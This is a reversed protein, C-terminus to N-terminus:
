TDILSVKGNCIKREGDRDREVITVIMNGRHQFLSASQITHKGTTRNLTRFCTLCIYLNLSYQSSPQRAHAHAETLLRIFSRDFILSAAFAM